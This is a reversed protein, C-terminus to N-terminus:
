RNTLFKIAKKAIRWDLEDLKDLLRLKVANTSVESTVPVAEKKPMSEDYMRELLGILKQNTTERALVANGIAEARAADGLGGNPSDNIKMDSVTKIADSIHSSDKIIMDIRSLIYDIQPAKQETENVTDTQETVIEPTELYINDDM